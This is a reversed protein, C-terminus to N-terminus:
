PLSGAAANQLANRAENLQNRAENLQNQVDNLQNQGDGLRARFDALQEEQKDGLMLVVRALDAKNWHNIFPALIQNEEMQAQRAQVSLNRAEDHREQM